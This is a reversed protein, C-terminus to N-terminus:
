QCKSISYTRCEKGTVLTYHSPFSQSTFVNKMYEAEVGNEKLRDFNPTKRGNEAAKSLYDFRFGDFSILLVPNIPDQQPLARGDITIQM